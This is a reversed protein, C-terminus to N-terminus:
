IQSQCAAPTQWLGDDFGVLFLPHQRPSPFSGLIEPEGIINRFRSPSAVEFKARLQPKGLRLM